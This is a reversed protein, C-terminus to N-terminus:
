LDSQCLPCRAQGTNQEVINKLFQQMCEKHFLHTKHCKLRLIENDDEYEGLCFSCELTTEFEDKIEKWATGKETGEIEQMMQNRQVRRNWDGIIMSMCNVALIIFGVAIGCLAADGCCEGFIRLPM